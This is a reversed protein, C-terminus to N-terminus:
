YSKMKKTRRMKEDVLCSFSFKKMKKRIIKEEDLCYSLFLTKEKNERREMEKRKM